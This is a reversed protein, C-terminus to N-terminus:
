KVTLSAADSTAKNGSADTVICRYQWGNYTSKASISLTATTAGTAGSNKWGSGSNYQWQYSLNVGIAAVTFKAATGTSATVNAPQATIAPKITLTAAGSTLKNGNADTVICRYQYGNYAVKANISLAV